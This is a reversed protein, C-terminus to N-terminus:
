EEVIEYLSKYKKDHHKLKAQYYGFRDNRFIIELLIQSLLHILSQSIYILFIVWFKIM